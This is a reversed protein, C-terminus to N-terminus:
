GPRHRARRGYRAAERAGDRCEDEAIRARMRVMEGLAWYTVGDGYALCRGRHWWVAESLGDIYKEFEWALRSKGIGAIGVVSLLHAKGEEASAHFLEKAMRLERDRGVFPPELGGRALAGGRRGVRPPVGCTCPESKGKVEYSGADEFGIAAEAARHTAEGVLM